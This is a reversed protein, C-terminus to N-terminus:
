LSLNRQKKRLLTKNQNIYEVLEEYNYMIEIVEALELDASHDQGEKAKVEYDLLIESYIATAGSGTMCELRYYVIIYNGNVTQYHLELPNNKM